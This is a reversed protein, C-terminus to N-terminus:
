CGELIDEIDTMLDVECMGMYDVHPEYGVDIVQLWALYDDANSSGSLVPVTFTPDDYREILASAYLNALRALRAHYTESHTVHATPKGCGNCNSITIITDFMHDEPREAPATTVVQSVTGAYTERSFTFWEGDVLKETVIFVTM